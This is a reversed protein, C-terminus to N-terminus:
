AKAGVGRSPIEVQPPDIGGARLHAALALQVEVTAPRLTSRQLEALAGRFSEPLRVMFGSKHRDAPQKKKSRPV